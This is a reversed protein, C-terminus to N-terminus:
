GNEKKNKMWEDALIADRTFSNNKWWAWVSACTTLVASVSNGVEEDTFPLPSHGTATLIQNTLVFLLVVTRVITIKKIKRKVIVNEKM